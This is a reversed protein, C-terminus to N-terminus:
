SQADRTGSSTMGEFLPAFREGLEGRVVLEYRGATM